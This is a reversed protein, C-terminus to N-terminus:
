LSSAAQPGAQRRRARTAGIIVSAPIWLGLLLYPNLLLSGVVVQWGAHRSLGGERLQKQVRYAAIMTKVYTFLYIFALGIAAGTLSRERDQGQVSADDGTVWLWCVTAFLLYILFSAALWRKLDRLEGAPFEHQKTGYRLARWQKLLEPDAPPAFPKDM